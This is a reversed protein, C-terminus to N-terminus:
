GGTIGGAQGHAFGCTHWGVHGGARTHACGGVCGGYMHAWGCTGVWVRVWVAGATLGCTNVQMCAHGVGACAQVGIATCGHTVPRGPAGVCGHAAWGGVRIPTGTRKHVLGCVRRGTRTGARTPACGAFWYMHTDTAHTVCPGRGWEWLTHTRCCAHTASTHIMASRARARCPACPWGRPWARSPACVNSCVRTVVRACVHMLARSRAHPWRPARCTHHWVHTHSRVQTDLRVCVVCVCVSAAVCMSVITRTTTRARGCAHGHTRAHIVVCAHDCRCVTECVARAQATGVWVGVCGGWLDGGVWRVWVCPWGVVGGMWEGVLAGM